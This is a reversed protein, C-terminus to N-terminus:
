SEQQSVAVQKQEDLAVRVAAGAPVSHEILYRALETKGVGTPGIFLLSAIPKRPRALGAKVTALLDLILDVAESQGIVRSAFWAQTQRLDLKVREDLLFLPLGTERSFAATVDEAALTKEEARDRLLNRLFRVPRGPYASYTAYRRHLQDLRELGDLDIAPAQDHAARWRAELACGLLIAKGREISPEEVKLQHFAELLHPDAREIIPVQEPTCETIAVFDGRAIYPRLFSAIGQSSLKGVEMLEVLNGLYLIAKEKAAERWLQQCREQWMGFGSMGAILRAGSTAWFPTRGLQFEQRRRVLEYVVATKGVGAPGVLLVSRPTRGNLADALHAVVESVEYAAPLREKCLNTGVEELVSKKKEDSAARQAAIQKPSPLNATFSYQDVRLARCRQLWVLERLSAIARARMLAARLHRPLLEDLQAQDRAIVEIGLAPVFALWAAEGHRWCVAPFKLTIPSRWAASRAPPEALLEVERVEPKGAARRRHQELPPLAEVIRTVNATLSERPRRPNDGFRLVEPFLLAEATYTENELASIIATLLFDFKPM